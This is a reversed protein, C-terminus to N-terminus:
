GKRSIADSILKRANESMATFAIGGGVQPISGTWIIEAKVQLPPRDPPKITLTVVEGPEPIWACAVYAQDVSINAIEGKIPGTPGELEM